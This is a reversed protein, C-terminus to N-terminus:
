NICARKALVPWQNEFDTCQTNNILGQLHNAAKSAELQSATLVGAMKKLNFFNEPYDVSHSLMNALSVDLLPNIDLM